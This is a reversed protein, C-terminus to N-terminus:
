DNGWSGSEARAHLDNHYDCGFPWAVRPSNPYTRSPSLMSRPTSTSQHSAVVVIPVARGLDLFQRGPSAASGHMHHAHQRRTQLSFIMGFVDVKGGVAYVRAPLCAVFVCQPGDRDRGPPKWRIAFVAYDDVIKFM